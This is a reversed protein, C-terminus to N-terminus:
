YRRVPGGRDIGSRRHALRRALVGELEVTMSGGSLEAVQDVFPQAEDSPRVGIGKLVLPGATLDGGAKDVPAGCGGLVVVGVVVGALVRIASTRVM